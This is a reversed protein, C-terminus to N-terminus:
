LSKFGLELGQHCVIRLSFIKIQFCGYVYGYIKAGPQSFPNQNVQYFCLINCSSGVIKKRECLIKASGFSSCLAFLFNFGDSGACRLLQAIQIFFSLGIGYPTM